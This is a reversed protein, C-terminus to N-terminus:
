TATLGETFGEQQRPLMAGIVAIQSSLEYPNPARRCQREVFSYTVERLAYQRALNRANEPLAAIAREQEATINTM